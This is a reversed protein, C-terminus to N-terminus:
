CCDQATPLPPICVGMFILWFLGLGRMGLVIEFAKVMTETTAQGGADLFNASRGGYFAIADNTAMALGAGNVVTGVDGDNLRVYVLGQKEAERQAPSKTTKDRLSALDPQRPAAADDITLASTDHCVFTDQATHLLKTIELHTADIRTFFTYLNQLLTQLNTTATQTLPLHTTLQSM